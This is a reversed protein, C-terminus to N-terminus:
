FADLYINNLKENNECSNNEISNYCKSYNLKYLYFKEKSNM